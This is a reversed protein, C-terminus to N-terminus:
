RKELYYIVAARENPDSVQEIVMQTGPVTTSPDSLFADLAEADWDINFARMAPSYTYGTVSGAHRGILGVLSPGIDDRGDHCTTCLREFTIQGHRYLREDLVGTDSSKEDCGGMMTVAVFAILRRSTGRIM